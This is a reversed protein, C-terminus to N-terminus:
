AQGVVKDIDHSPQSLTIAQQINVVHEGDSGFFKTFLAKLTALQAARVDKDPISNLYNLADQWQQDLTKGAEDEIWKLQVLWVPLQLKFAEILGTSAPVVSEIIAEISQAAPSKLANLVDEAIKLIPKLKEEAGTIWDLVKKFFHGIDQIINAM